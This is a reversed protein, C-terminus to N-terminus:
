KDAPAVESRLDAVGGPRDHLWAVEEPTLVRDFLALDDIYGVYSWGLAVIVSAPNWAFTLDWGSIRGMPKGDIFLAGGAAKGAGIREYTFVVHVWRERDFPRETLQVMPREHDPFSEWDRDEPNWRAYEPLIAYRFRRPTHDKSWEIFLFGDRHNDSIFMLPDCFARPIDEDPSTRLWLSATGSLGASELPLNGASAYFLRGAHGAARYLAGGFRGSGPEVRLDPGTAAPQGGALREARTQFVRLVPDGAAFDAALGSDFSAHFRLARALEERMGGPSAAGASGAIFAFALALSRVAPNM